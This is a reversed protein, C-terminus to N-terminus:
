VYFREGTELCIGALRGNPLGCGCGMLYLNKKENRWISNLMGDLYEGDSKRYYKVSGEPYLPNFMHYFAGKEGELEASTKETPPLIWKYPMVTLDVARETQSAFTSKGTGAYASIIM